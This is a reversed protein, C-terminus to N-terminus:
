FFSFLGRGCSQLLGGFHLPFTKLPTLNVQFLLINLSAGVGVPTDLNPTRWLDPFARKKSVQDLVPTEYEGFNPIKMEEKLSVILGLDWTLHGPRAPLLLWRVPSGHAARTLPPCRLPQPIRPGQLPPHACTGPSPPPDLTRATKGM